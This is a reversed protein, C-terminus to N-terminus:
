LTEKANIDFDPMAHLGASPGCKIKSQFCLMAAPHEGLVEVLQKSGSIM